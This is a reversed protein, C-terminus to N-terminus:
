LWPAPPLDPPYSDILYRALGAVCVMLEAVLEDWAAAAEPDSLDPRPVDVLARLEPLPRPPAALASAYDRPLLALGGRRLLASDQALGPAAYESLLRVSADYYDRYRPDVLRLVAEKTPTDLAILVDHRDLDPAEFRETPRAFAKPRLGLQRAKFMLAAQTSLDATAGQDADVGCTWPLLIRGYGNWEAVREFLAAALRGRLVDNSDIFLVQLHYRSWDVDPLSHTSSPASGAGVREDFARAASCRRRQRAGAGARAPAHPGAPGLRRAQAHAASKM